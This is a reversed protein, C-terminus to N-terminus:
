EKIEVGCQKALKDKIKNVKVPCVDAFLKRPIGLDQLKATEKFEQILMQSFKNLIKEAAEKSSQKRVDYCQQTKDRRYEDKKIAEFNEKTLVVKDKYEHEFERRVQAVLKAHEDMTLVVAKEPLKRYGHEYLAKCNLLALCTAGTCSTCQNQCLVRAMEEIQKEKDKM